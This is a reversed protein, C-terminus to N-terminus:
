GGVGQGWGGLVGQWDDSGGGGMKLGNCGEEGVCVSDTADVGHVAELYLAKGGEGGGWM